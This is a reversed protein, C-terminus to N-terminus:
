GKLAPKIKKRRLRRKEQGTLPQELCRPIDTIVHKTIKVTTLIDELTNVVIINKGAIQAIITQEKM